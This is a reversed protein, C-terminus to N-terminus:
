FEIFLCGKSLNEQATIVRLNWEVHLGCVVHEGRENKGVLPVIHDVHHATSTLVTLRSAADYIERIKSPNAAPCVPRGVLKGAVRRNAIASPKSAHLANIHAAYAPDSKIRANRAAIEKDRLTRDHMFARIHVHFLEWLECTWQAIPLQEIMQKVFKYLGRKSTNKRPIKISLPNLYATTM